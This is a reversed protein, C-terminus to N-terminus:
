RILANSFEHTLSDIGRCVDAFRNFFEKIFDKSRIGHTSNATIIHGANDDLQLLKVDLIYYCFSNTGFAFDSKMWAYLYSIRETKKKSIDAFSRTYGHLILHLTCASM